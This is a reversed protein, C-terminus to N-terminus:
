DTKREDKPIEIATMAVSQFPVRKAKKEVSHAGNWTVFLTGGDESLAYGFSGIPIYGTAKELAPHLFCIVKKTKKRLDYQVVPTGDKEAGGHAGPLYYLYRGSPDVDLSTIYEKSAVASSGLLDAKETEVDFVWLADGDVTYIKGERTEESAARLGVKAGIVTPEGPNRPDFRYLEREGSRKKGEPLPGGHFYMMGTSKSLIMARYPGNNGAHLLKGGEVDHALFQPGKKNLGDATGAYWIMREGDLMGTPLCQMPLPQAAVVETAGSGPDVKIIWDGEFDNKPDLGVKTSGRHTSFYIWGDKGM